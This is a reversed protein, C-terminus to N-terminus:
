GKSRKLRGEGGGSLFKPRLHLLPNFDQQFGATGEGAKWEGGSREESSRGGGGSRRVGGEECPVEEYRATAVLSDGKDTLPTLPSTLRSSGLSLSQPVTFDDDWVPSNDGYVEEELMSLFRLLCFFGYNAQFVLFYLSTLMSLTDFMATM